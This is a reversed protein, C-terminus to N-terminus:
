AEKSPLAFCMLSTSWSNRCYRRLWLIDAPLLAELESASASASPLCWLEVGAGPLATEM